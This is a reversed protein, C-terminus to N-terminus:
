LSQSRNRRLAYREGGGTEEESETDKRIHVESVVHMQDSPMM